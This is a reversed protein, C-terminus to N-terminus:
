SYYWLAFRVTLYLYFEIAMSLAIPGLLRHQLSLHLEEDVEKWNTKQRKLLSKSDHKKCSISLNHLSLREIDPLLIAGGFWATM